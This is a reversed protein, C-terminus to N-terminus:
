VTFIGFQLKGALTKPAWPPAIPSPRAVEAPGQSDESEGLQSNMNEELEKPIEPFFEAQSLQNEAMEDIAIASQCETRMASFKLNMRIATKMGMEPWNDVWPGKNKAKSYRNRHWEIRNHSIVTLQPVDCGKIRHLAWCWQVDDKNGFEKRSPNPRYHLMPNVGLNFEFEDGEFVIGADISDLLESRRALQILGKYGPVVQAQNGYPIIYIHGLPGPELGLSGCYLLAGILSRPTCELLAPNLNISTFLQGIFREASLFKPMSEQIADKNTLLLSRLTERKERPTLANQM